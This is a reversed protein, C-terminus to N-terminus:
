SRGIMYECAREFRYDEETIEIPGELAAKSIDIKSAHEELFKKDM